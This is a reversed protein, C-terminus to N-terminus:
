DNEKLKRELVKAFFSFIKVSVYYIAGAFFIPKSNFYTAVLGKSKFTLDLISILGVISTEKFLVIFENVLSPLINRIAQPLIIEWMSLGYPMGIAKAAEMQGKDLSEIGARIIEAVYAASNLGFAISAVIFVNPVKALIGLYLILLQIMLPTGRMIDIYEDIIFEVVKIGQFRLFTLLAGVSIGIIAGAGTLALTVVYSDFLDKQEPQTMQKPYSWILWALSFIVLVSVKLIVQINKNKFMQIMVEREVGKKNFFASM